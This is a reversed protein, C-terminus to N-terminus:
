RRIEFVRWQNTSQGDGITSALHNQWLVSLQDATSCRWGSVGYQSSYTLHPSLLIASLTSLGTVTYTQWSAEAAALVPPTFDVAYWQMLQIASTSGAGFLTASPAIHINISSNGITISSAIGGSSGIRIGTSTISFSDTVNVRTSTINVHTSGLNLSSGNFTVPGGTSTGLALIGSAGKARVSLAASADDSAPQVVGGTSGGTLHVGHSSGVDSVVDGTFHVYSDATSRFEM